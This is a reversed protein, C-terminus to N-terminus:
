RSRQTKVRLQRLKPLEAILAQNREQEAASLKGSRQVYDDSNMWQDYELNGRTRNCRKCCAILNQEVSAGGNEWLDVHDVTLAGEIGCYRCRYGDRKFVKWSIATDIQRQSKRVVAKLAGLMEVELIDTQYLVSQWDEIDLNLWLLQTSLNLSFKEGPLAAIMADENRKQFVVGVIQITNGFERLNFDTLKM